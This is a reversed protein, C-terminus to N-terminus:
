LCRSFRGCHDVFDFHTQIIDDFGRAAIASGGHGTALLSRVTASVLWEPAAGWRAAAAASHDLSALSAANRTRIVVSPYTGRSSIAILACPLKHFFFFFFDL